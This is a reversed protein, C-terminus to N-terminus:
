RSRQRIETGLQQAVADGVERARYPTYGGGVNVEVHITTEGGARWLRAEPTPLVAEGPHLLAPMTTPVYQIGQQLPVGGPGKYPRGPTTFSLPHDQQGRVFGEALARAYDYGYYEFLPSIDALRRETTERMVNLSHEHKTILRSMSWRESAERQQQHFSWEHRRHRLNRDLQRLQHDLSREQERSSRRWADKERRLSQKAEREEVDEQHEYREELLELEKAYVPDIAEIRAELTADFKDLAKKDGSKAIREREQFEKSLAQRIWWPARDLLDRRDRQYDWEMDALEDMLDQKMYRLRNYHTATDAEIRIAATELLDGRRDGADREIKMLDFMAREAAQRMSFQADEVRRAYNWNKEAVDRLYDDWVDAGKELAEQQEELDETVDDTADGLDQAGREADRMARLDERIGQDVVRIAQGVGELTLGLERYDQIGEKAWRGGERQRQNLLSFRRAMEELSGSTRVITDVQSLAAEDADLVAKKLGIVAETVEIVAPLLAEGLEQRLEATTVHFREFVDVADDGIENWRELDDAGQELVANRTAEQRELASLQDVTKGLLRAQKEMVENEKILINLNDLIRPSGRGIGTAMWNWADVVSKGTERARVYTIKMLKEFEEVNTAVGLRMATSAAAMASFRDVTGKSARDIAELIEESAAGYRAAVAEFSDELAMNKAAMQATSIASEVAARVYHSAVAALAVKAVNELSMLSDGFGRTKATVTDLRRGAQDGFRQISNGFSRLKQQARSTVAEVLLRLKKDAM